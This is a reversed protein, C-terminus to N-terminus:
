DLPVSQEFPLFITMMTGINVESEIEITGGLNDLQLKVLFLGFGSGDINGEHFRQFPQFLKPEANKLDIGIGNDKFILIVGDEKLKSKISIELPRFPFRYKISNSLLNYFLSQIYPKVSSIKDIEFFDATLRLDEVEKINLTEKISHFLHNLDIEEFDDNKKNNIELIKALDKVVRDMALATNQIHTIILENETGQISNKDLINYLGLLRAIPGRLNHSTIYSYQELKKYHVLLKESSLKLQHTREEVRQELKENYNKLQFNQGDLLENQEHVRESLLKLEEHQQKLEHNQEAIENTREAVLRELNLSNEQIIRENEKMVEIILGQTSITEQKLSYSKAVLAMTFLFIEVILSLQLANATLPNLPIVNNIALVSIIGGLFVIVTALILYKAPSYGRFYVIISVVLVVLNFISGIFQTIQFTSFGFFFGLLLLIQVIAVGYFIRYFIPFTQKLKLYVNIFVFYFFTSVILSAPYLLNLPLYYQAIFENFVGNIFFMFFGTSLVWAIYAIYILEKFIFYYYISFLCVLLLVGLYIGNFIYNANSDSQIKAKQIIEIPVFGFDWSEVRAFFETKGKPIEFTFYYQQEKRNLIPRLIGTETKEVKGDPSVSYFDLVLTGILGIKVMYPTSTSNDITFKVWIPSKEYPILDKDCNKFLAKVNPKELDEFAIKQTSDSFYSVYNKLFYTENAGKLQFTQTYGNLFCFLIPFFALSKLKM